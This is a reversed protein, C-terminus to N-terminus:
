SAPVTRDKAWARLRGVHESMTVSLPRTLRLEEMVLDTALPRDQAHASYLAAVIAQEIEAGSFGDSARALADLDFEDPVQDRGRLHIEFLASRTPEDPLDVFFIEDLRGKRLLEPPLADINNATAVVFVREKREAMWTLLTGLVRQSTGGDSDSTSVGKEIEDIWLVCPAMVAATELSRRLNRETEGHYKNYLTGFDLRLLPVEFGGAVAKAALSKGCGQVGLLLIGKPPDLGPPADGHFVRQRQAIWHKLRVLGAVDQFRATEYEFCLVGGRNLLDFKAQMVRPLDSDGIAGDNYIANRTLQRADRLTLGVLNNVLMSMSRANVKVRRGEHRRSWAFAEDKVLQELAAQDPMALSLQSAIGSLSDPLDVQASVLILVHEVSGQRLAIERMLRQNVPDNLFPDLDFLVYLGPEKAAKLSRLMEGASDPENGFNAIDLDLRTLGETVTWRFLPMWVKTVLRRMLDIVRREEETEIVILPASSKVLLTLDKLDPM